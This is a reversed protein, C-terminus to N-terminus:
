RKEARGTGPRFVLIHQWPLVDIVRDFRYGEAELEIRAERVSMKHEERIPVWQSEKRFEILVLRGDPRIARTLSQLFAQPQALEHYVDVMLALDLSRDPLRSETATGLVLEVNTIPHQEIKKRILALMEPQIDTAYVRGREGVAASLLMTYYGSGAGIDAVVQGPRLQLAAIARSPAEESERSPRELWPAAEHGMVGAITRGSIPHTAQAFSYGTAVAALLAARVAARRRSM